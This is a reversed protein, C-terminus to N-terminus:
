QEERRRDKPGAITAALPSIWQGDTPLDPPWCHPNIQGGLSKTTVAWLPLPPRPPPAESPRAPAQGVVTTRVMPHRPRFLVLELGPRAVILATAIGAQTM